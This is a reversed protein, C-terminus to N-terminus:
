NPNKILTRADGEKKTIGKKDFLELLAIAYKRSSVISDRFEALTVEKKEALESFIEIAKNYYDCHIFIQPALFVLTGNQVLFDITQKFAKQDKQYKALIGDTTPPSFGAQLFVTLIEDHLKQYGDSKAAKYGVNSVVAGSFVISNNKEFFDIIIDAVAQTSKPLLRARLEDKRMGDLLPNQSHFKSLIQKCQALLTDLFNKHVVYNKILFVEGKDVLRALTKDFEPTNSFVTLKLESVNPFDKSRDFIFCSLREAFNGKEKTNFMENAIGDKRKRKLPNPDLIIGGGITELPSYFRVVFHDNPKACIQSDLHLQAYGSEGNSLEDKDLLVLRGLTSTTGHFFHLRSNNLIKRKTDNVIDLRVDLTKTNCLSGPSALVSGKAVDEVKLGALNVAVRQSRNAVQVTKGHVQLNRVKTKHMMPYVMIDDGIALKGETLTGTVVTGFGDVSFVRDIPLRAPSSDIKEPTNLVIDALCAKLENIGAGTSSSVPMIPANELFTGKMQEAIDLAIMEVWEKDFLDIKTLAIVGRKIGLLSLINLHERSQPMIGENCAIVFLALDISGAGALMNRVFKEHGPVDIIGCREGNPLALYAFGLEITIGREKEQKHNDTDIGTLAKILQTKGHDVHGATGIITNSM